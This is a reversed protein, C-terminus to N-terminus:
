SSPSSRTEFLRANFLVYSDKPQLSQDHAVTREIGGADRVRAVIFLMLLKDEPTADVTLFEELLAQRLIEGALRNLDLPSSQASTGQDAQRATGAGWGILGLIALTVIITRM